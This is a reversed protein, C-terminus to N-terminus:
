GSARLASRHTWPLAPSCQELLVALSGVTLGHGQHTPDILDPNSLILPAQVGYADLLLADCVAILDNMTPTESMLTRYPLRATKGVVGSKM